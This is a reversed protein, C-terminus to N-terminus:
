RRPACRQFRRYSAAFADFEKRDVPLGRWLVLEVVETRTARAVGSEELDRVVRALEEAIAARLRLYVAERGREEALRELTNARPGAPRSGASGHPAPGPAGEPGAADPHRDSGPSRTPLPGIRPRAIQRDRAQRAIPSRGGVTEHRLQELGDRGPM